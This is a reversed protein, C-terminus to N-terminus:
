KETHNLRKSDDNLWENLHSQLFNHDDDNGALESRRILEKTQKDTLINIYENIM